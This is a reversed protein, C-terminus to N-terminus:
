IGIMLWLHIDQHMVTTDGNYYEANSIGCNQM